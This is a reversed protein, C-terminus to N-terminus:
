VMATRATFAQYLVPVLILTLFTSALLGGIVAWGFPSWLTSGSLTLPLLGGITTATTLLIPTFRAASAQRLAEGASVGDRRLQNAYDILIIANNIVIGVLSTLGVGATFSFTFGTLFLAVVAGIVALPIAAFVVLPQSFSRFQLVLVGFIGFLAILLAQLLGGFSEQTQELEGGVSYRYGVPWDYTELQDVIEGTVNTTNFGEEVDASITVSRELNYHNIKSLGAKFALTAVQKLPITAGTVSAVQVRDLDSLKPDGDTPIRVVVDFADGSRTRFTSVPLGTVGARVTRDIDVLPVGLLGAKARNVDVLLNTRAEALPNDIDRTGTVGRIMAEVAGAHHELEALEEGIVRIEIPAGVGPGQSLEEVKLNAGPYDAFRDRLRRVLGERMLRDYERVEVLVQGYSSKETNSVKNYYMRPNARGINTAYLRVDEEETLVSEIYRGVRDTEALSAGEPLEMDILFQTKEAKPFLSFGVYPFLALSGVLLVTSVVVTLVPRRLATDLSRRYYRDITRDLQRQVWTQKVNGNRLLKSSLYPTLILAILLSAMLAAIVSIPMSRIFSGTGGGLFVMPLFALVTTITSSAIAWGVQQTGKIAATRGDMGAKRFRHINEVVVIANDVLLGLAIMLGVISMQQLAFGGFDILAIAALLSVPIATMVIGAARIGLALLSILGVLLLGQLLNGFFVGLRNNVSETQDFAYALQITGPLRAEYDQIRRKLRDAVELINTGEQQVVTVFVAREGNLRAHYNLEAYDPTVEAVDKLYVVRGNRGSVITNRIDDLSEYNGTTQVSYRRTGINLNGAPINANTAQVAGIIQALSVQRYAMKDLDVAVSVEPEPYAWTEVRLVGPDRELAKKLDLAEDRLDRYPATESVLALQLISVGQPSFKRVVPALIEEPLESRVATLTELLEDHKEESDSSALFEVVVVTFGEEITTEITKIDEIGNFAGELPDVILQEIDAPSAGPYVVFVSFAPFTFQPDESRPMRLLSMVGLAIILLVMVLTFQYNEIAIRPLRM